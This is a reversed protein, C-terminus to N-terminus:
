VWRARYKLVATGATKTIKFKGIPLRFFDSDLTVDQMISVGNKTVTEAALDIIITDTNIFDHDIQIKEGTTSLGVQLSSVTGTKTITIIGTAPYTGANTIDTAGITVTTETASYSAPDPSIFELTIRGTHLFKNVDSYGDLIAMEYKDTEDLELKAPEKSYLKGALERIASQLNSRSTSILRIDVEILRAGLQSRIFQEGDSGPIARTINNVVPLLHRRVKEVYVISSLDNSNFKM